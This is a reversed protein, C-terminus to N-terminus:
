KAVYLDDARSIVADEIFKNTGTIYNMVKLNSRDDKEEEDDDMLEDIIKMAKMKMKPNCM